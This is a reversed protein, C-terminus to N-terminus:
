LATEAQWYGHLNCWSVVRVKSGPTKIYISVAPYLSLPIFFRTVFKDNMYWDVYKIHHAEEMAHMTKGVRVSVEKCPLDSVLTSEKKCTIVPAHSIEKDKFKTMADSFLSNNNTFKDKPAHCVPCQDPASGFEVHGCVSCVFIKIATSPTPEEKASIAVMPGAELVAAGAVATQLFDRRNFINKEQNMFREKKLTFKLICM